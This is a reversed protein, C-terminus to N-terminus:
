EGKLIAAPQIRRLLQLPVVGAILTLVVSGALVLPLVDLRPLVTQHLSARGIWAAIGIGILYGAFAGAAGLVAAELAFIGNTELESAGLAKMIAFDKRRDLVSSLLNAFVCLGATLVILVVSVLLAARTKGFVNAEAETIQRVERVTAAPFLTTLERQFNAIESDAMNASIEIVSPQVGTWAIVDALRMYIRSDESGGTRITGAANITRTQGNFNLAFPQFDPAVATVARAGLLAGNAAPKREEIQWSPNLKRLREIDTGVVVAPSDNATRAVVYAFPVAIGRNKLISDVLGLSNAPLAKGEPASLVVNAGYGRLEGRVKAQVDRSLNMIVTAVAAATAIAVLATLLRGRRGSMFTSRATMRLFM